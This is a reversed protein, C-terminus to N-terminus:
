PCEGRRRRACGGSSPEYGALIAAYIPGDEGGRARKANSRFAFRYLWVKVDCEFVYDFVM